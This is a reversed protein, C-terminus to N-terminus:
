RDWAQLTQLRRLVDELEQRFGDRDGGDLLGRNAALKVGTKFLETSVAEASTIRGQLHYQRGVALCERVLADGDVPETGHAGLRDAV